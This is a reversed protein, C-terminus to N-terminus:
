KNKYGVVGRVCERGLNDYLSRYRQYVGGGDRQNGKTGSTTNFGVTQVLETNMNKVVTEIHGNSTGPTNWILNDGSDAYYNAPKGNKKAYSFVNNALLTLEIPIESKPLNLEKAATWWSWSVGASCYPLFGHYNPNWWYFYKWIQVGDNRGTKETTGIQSKVTEIFKSKLDARCQLEYRLPHSAFAQLSFLIIFIIRM